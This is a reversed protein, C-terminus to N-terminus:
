SLIHYSIILNHYSTITNQHSMDYIIVHHYSIFLYSSIIIHCSSIKIHCSSIIILYSSIIILVEHEGPLQCYMQTTRPLMLMLRINPILKQMQIWHVNQLLIQCFNWALPYFNILNRFNAIQFKMHMQLTELFGQRQNGKRLEMNLHQIPKM